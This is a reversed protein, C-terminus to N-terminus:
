KNSYTANEIILLTLKNLHFISFFLNHETFKKFYYNNPLKLFIFHPPNKKLLIQKCIIEIPINDLFLKVNNKFKYSPGGWPPDIFIVDGNINNLLNLYSDNFTIVNSTNYLKLNNILFNYRTPNIEISIVQKFKSSFTITDGGVGATADIIISNLPNLGIKILQSSIISAINLSVSPLTISYLSVDDILLKKNNINNAQYFLKKLVTEDLELAM